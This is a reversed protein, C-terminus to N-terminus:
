VHDELEFVIVQAGRRSVAKGDVIRQVSVKGDGYHAALIFSKTADVTLYPARMPAKATGIVRWRARADRKLTSIGWGREGGSGTQMAVYLHKKDKSFVMAGPNGPMEISQVKKLGGSDADVTFYDIRGDSQNALFLYQEAQASAVALTLALLPSVRKM